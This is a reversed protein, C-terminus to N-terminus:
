APVTTPGPARRLKVLSDVTEWVAIVAIGAVVITDVPSGQLDFGTRDALAAAFEPNWVQETAFLAVFYAVFAVNVALNAAVLRITWRGEAFKWVEVAVAVAVLGFLLPLWSSWLAPDLIPIPGEANDFPSRLEQWFVWGPVLALVVLSGILDGRTIQREPPVQPLDDPRWGASQEAFVVTKGGTTTLSTVGTRELIVFALTTWFGIHVAVELTSGAAALVVEIMPTEADWLAVLLQVALVVPLVVAALLKLVGVYERFLGPGILYRPRTDYGAALARPDGLAVLADYVAGDGEGGRDDVMDAITARLERSVEERADAPLSRSVEYLYRDVLDNM